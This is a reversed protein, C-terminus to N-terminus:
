ANVFNKNYIILWPDRKRDIQIPHEIKNTQMNKYFITTNQYMNSTIISYSHLEINEHDITQYPNEYGDENLLLNSLSPVSSESSPVNQFSSANSNTSQSAPRNFSTVVEQIHNPIGQISANSDNISGIEYYQGELPFEVVMGTKKRTLLCYINVCITFILSGGLLSSTIQWIHNTYKESNCSCDEMEVICINSYNSQGVHTRAFMRLYYKKAYLIHNITFKLEQDVTFMSQAISGVVEWESKTEPRYEICFRQPNGGNFGPQWYVVITTYNLVASVHAPPEPHNTAVVNYVDIYITSSNIYQCMYTGDDDSMFNTIKLNCKKVDYGGFIMYKSKQLSPNLDTGLTYPMYHDAASSSTKSPGTWKGNTKDFCTCNLILSYGAKVVLAHRTKKCPMQGIDLLNFKLPAVLVFFM